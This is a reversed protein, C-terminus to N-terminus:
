VVLPHVGSLMNIGTLELSPVEFDVSRPTPRAREEDHALRLCHSSRAPLLGFPVPLDLAGFLGRKLWGLLISEYALGM